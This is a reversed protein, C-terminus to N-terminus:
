LAVLSLWDAIVVAESVLALSDEDEPTAVAGAGFLIVLACVTQLSLFAFPFSQL